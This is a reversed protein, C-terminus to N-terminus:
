EVSGELTVGVFRSYGNVGIYWTGATPNNIVCSDSNGTNWSRCNYRRTTPSRGSRVYLDADGRGGSISVSLTSAGSPVDISYTLFDGTSGSLGTEYLGAEEEVGEEVEEESEEEGVGEEVEEESEEEEGEEADGILGELAATADVIGSGCLTCTSPFSRSTEKLLSEVEAPTIEPDISYLLAAAGAVHPAAMSTGQYYAYADGAPSDSGSNLTSLVGNTVGTSQDGGPAAVDVLAGFNTYYASGGTRGVAAVTIVNACNAPSSNVVNIASNGAAVVVTAGLGVATNIAAQSTRDCTGSGGLSLNLVDAPYPNEPVGTVNGGAAWIMADAIDSTYGGCKGLARVPVIQADYAVGAGGIGNNTVAAVTGAVHTGHWSSSSAEHEYGCENATVADGPDSADSDRGNNGDNGVFSDSIMDYGPLLNGVLDAHDTYGTDIVAVIAGSGTSVDWAEPLNLGATAEYYHWQNDYLPDTPTAMPQMLRDEEVYEINPDSAMEAILENMEVRSVGRELRMVHAGTAMRRVHKMSRRAYSTSQDLVSSSLTLAQTSVASDKYKVILRNLSGSDTTTSQSVVSSSASANIAANAGLPAAVASVSLFASLINRKSFIM